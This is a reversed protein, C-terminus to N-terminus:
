SDYEFTGDDKTTAFQPTLGAAIVMQVKSAPKGDVDLVTVRVRYVPVASLKIELHWLEGSHPIVIRAAAGPDTVGPYYTRAWGRRLNDSAAPPKWAPPPAASLLWSGNLPLGELRFEGNANAPRGQEIVIRQGALTIAVM